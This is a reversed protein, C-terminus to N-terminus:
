YNVDCTNDFFFLRRIVQVQPGTHSCSRSREVLYTMSSIVSYWPIYDDEKELYSILSFPVSYSLEGARALNFSDDILQARNLVHIMKPHSQLEAILLNWNKLDYNVRYFGILFCQWDNFIILLQSPM